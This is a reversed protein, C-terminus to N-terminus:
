LLRSLSLFGPSSSSSGQGALPRAKAKMLSEALSSVRLIEAKLDTGTNGGAQCRAAVLCADLLPSVRGATRRFYDNQQQFIFNLSFFYRRPSIEATALIYGKCPKRM